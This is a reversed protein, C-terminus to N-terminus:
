IRGGKKTLVYAELLKTAVMLEEKHSITTKTKPEYGMRFESISGYLRTYVNM